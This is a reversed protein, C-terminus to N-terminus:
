RAAVGIAHAPARAATREEALLRDLAAEAEPNGPDFALVMTYTDAARAPASAREYARALRLSYSVEAPRLDVLRALTRAEQDPQGVAQYAGALAALAIESNRWVDCIDNLAMVTEAPAQDALVDSLLTVVSRSPGRDIGVRRLAECAAGPSIAKAALLKRIGDIGQPESAPRNLLFAYEWLADEPRGAMALTAALSARYDPPASEAAAARSLEDVADTYLGLAHKALGRVYAAEGETRQTEVAQALVALAKDPQGNLLHAYALGVELAPEPTARLSAQATSVAKEPGYLKAIVDVLLRQGAPDGPDLEVLRSAAGFAAILQDEDAAVRALQELAQRNDPSLELYRSLYMRCRGLEGEDRCLAVLMTLADYDSPRSWMYRAYREIAEDRLGMAACLEAAVRQFIARRSYIGALGRAQELAAEDGSQRRYAAILTRVVEPPPDPVALLTVLFDRGTRPEGAQEYNRILAELYETDDPAAAAVQRRLKIAEEIKGALEACRAQRDLAWVSGPRDTVIGALLQGAKDLQRTRLYLAALDSRVILNKPDRHLLLEYEQIAEPLRGEAALLRGLPTLYQTRTPDLRQIAQLHMIAGDLDGLVEASRALRYRAEINDPERRLVEWAQVDAARVDGLDRYVDSLALRVSVASPRMAALTVLADRALDPRDLGRALDAVAALAVENEPDLTLGSRFAALAEENRGLQALITGLRFQWAAEKPELLAAQRYQEAAEDRQGLAVLCDALAARLKADQPRQRVAEQYHSRAIGAQGAKMYTAALNLHLELAQPGRVLTSLKEYIALAERHLGLAEDEKALEGLLVPDNPTDALMERLLQRADLHRDAKQYLDLMAYRARSHKPELQLVADYYLEAQAVNNLKAYADGLSILVSADRPSGLEAARLYPVAAQAQGQELLSRGFAYAVQSDGALEDMASRLAQVCEPYQGLRFYALGLGRRSSVLGPSVTLASNFATVAYRLQSTRLYCWGLNDYAQSDRPDILVVRRFYSVAGSYDGASMLRAGTAMHQRITQVDTLPPQAAALGAFLVVGLSVAVARRAM